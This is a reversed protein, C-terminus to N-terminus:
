NQRMLPLANQVYQKAMKQQERKADVPCKTKVTQALQWLNNTKFLNVILVIWKILSSGLM